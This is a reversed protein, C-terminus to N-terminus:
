KFTYSLSGSAGTSSLTPTTSGDIYINLFGGNYTATLVDGGKAYLTKHDGNANTDWFETGNLYLINHANSTIRIDHTASPSLATNTTDSKKKCSATFILIVGALAIILKTKM